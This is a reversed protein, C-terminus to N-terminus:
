HHGAYPGVGHSRRPLLPAVVDRDLCPRVHLNHLDRLEHRADLWATVRPDLEPAPHGKARDRGLEADAPLTDHLDELALAPRRRTHFNPSLDPTPPHPDGLADQWSRTM